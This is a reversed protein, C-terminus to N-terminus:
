KLRMGLGCMIREVRDAKNALFVLVRGTEERWEREFKDAPIIGSGIEDCIIICEPHAEIFEKTKVMPNEGRKLLSRIWLQFDHIVADSPAYRLREDADSNECEIVTVDKRNTKRLDLVYDLKGQFFGGIYLEM